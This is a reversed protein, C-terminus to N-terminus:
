RSIRQISFDVNILGPDRLSGHGLQGFTGIANPVFASPNFWQAIEQSKARGGTQGM